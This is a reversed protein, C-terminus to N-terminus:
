YVVIILLVGCHKKIDFFDGDEVDVDEVLVGLGHHDDQFRLSGGQFRNTCPAVVIVVMHQFFHHNFFGATKKYFGLCAEGSKVSIEGM